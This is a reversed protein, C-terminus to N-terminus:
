FLVTPFNIPSLLDLKAILPNVIPRKVPQKGSPLSPASMSDLSEVDLIPRVLLGIM